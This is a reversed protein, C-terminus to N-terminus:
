QKHPKFWWTRPPTGIPGDRDYPGWGGVDSGLRQEGFLPIRVLALESNGEAPAARSGGGEMEDVHDPNWCYPGKLTVGRIWLPGNGYAVWHGRYVKPVPQDSFSLTQIYTGDPFLQVVDLTDPEEAHYVGPVARVDHVAFIPLDSGVFWAGFSLACWAGVTVELLLAASACWAVFRSIRLARRDGRKTARRALIVFVVLYALTALAIALGVIGGVAAVTMPGLTNM